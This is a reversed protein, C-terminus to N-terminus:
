VSVCLWYTNHTHDPSNVVFGACTVMYRNKCTKSLAKKPWKLPPKVSSFIFLFPFCHMKTGFWLFVLNNSHSDSYPLLSIPHIFCTVEVYENTKCVNRANTLVSGAHQIQERFCMNFRSESAWTSDARQLM